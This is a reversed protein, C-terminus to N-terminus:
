CDSASAAAVCFPVGGSSVTVSRDLGVLTGAFLNIAAPQNEQEVPVFETGSFDGFRSDNYLKCIVNGCACDDVIQCHDEGVVRM